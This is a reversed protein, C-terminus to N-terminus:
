GIWWSACCVNAAPFFWGREDVEIGRAALEFHEAADSRALRWLLQEEFNEAPLDARYRPNPILELGIGYSVLSILQEIGQREVKTKWHPASVIATL